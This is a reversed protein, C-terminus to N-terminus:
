LNGFQLVKSVSHGFGLLRETRCAFGLLRNMLGALNAPWDGNAEM